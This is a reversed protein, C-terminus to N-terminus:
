ICGHLPHREWAASAADLAAAPGVLSLCPPALCRRAAARLEEADLAPAQVLMREVHDGPLGHSLVLADREAIQSCTQRGMAEQGVLKALALEREEETLLEEHLRQWEDLLCTTAEAARDSSTSLHLVFPAAGCRAPLHVGVDYALGRQERMVVFLRCSMGMGLHTQLLRLALADPHGMPVTATGLMLVLQETDQEERALRARGPPASRGSADWAPPPGPLHTTWAEAGAGTVLLQEVGSPVEGCLVLVAGDDGLRRQLPRLDDAELAALEDEVGLPDHGYPGHGYLQLRLQDHALQFPDERQRQLTQLNLQRELEVQDPDLTPRVVMELLLPLLDSADTAACKLGIVLGDEHAEARLAAGAGEVRDALAEANLDGCGRTMLGALLQHAGRAGVPDRSSGGRIVLRAALIAPGRRSHILLPLGGALQRHEKAAAPISLSM